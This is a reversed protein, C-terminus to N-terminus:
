CVRRLAAHPQQHHARCLWRVILPLTYDDHHADTRFSGCVECVGRKLSGDRLARRVAEHADLKQRNARNWKIQPTPPLDADRRKWTKTGVFISHPQM